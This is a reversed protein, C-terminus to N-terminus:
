EFSEIIKLAYKLILQADALEVSLNQDVDAAWTGIEGLQDIKLAARLALKADTLDVKGDGDVDGLRIPTPTPVQSPVPTPTPVQSPEPTPTPVESPAPTPTPGESPLPKADPTENPTYGETFLQYTKGKETELTIGDANKTFAVANGDADKVESVNIGELELTGGANSTIQAYKAVGGKWQMDVTFNGRAVLGEVYGDSWASPLAPLLEVKDNQSQLLMETVGATGGFNGDIQFPAHTDFLNDYTSTALMANFLDYAHDGDGTRAWLNLRHALGWGTSVDTRKTLVYQAAEIYEKDDKNIYNGPYLAVLQSIHRHDDSGIGKGTATRNYKTEHQWEKIQGSEGIAVPDLRDIADKLSALLVGDDAIYAEATTAPEKAEIGLDEMVKITDNFLQWVLQQDFYAGVTWQGQESSYSPVVFLKDKDTETRGNQLTQLYTICAERLYPYIDSKLYDLDQTYAYYDYLNQALFAVATPAFAANSDINGTFGRATTSCNFTFGDETELDIKSEDSDYGIGYQKALTLRGPKRLSNAYDVLATATEALNTSEALWYNMQLNINTHWDSNWAPGDTDNWIGQLNAPLSGERSSAILMYRGYQYYLMELYKSYGDDNKTGNYNDKYADLLEDTPIDAPFEAGLDLRVRDFLQRYDIEHRTLLADYGKAAAAEVKEEVNATLQELSEGTTYDKDFDNVYDTTLSVIIYAENAGTVTISGNDRPEALGNSIENEAVMEGGTTVVKFQGVFKMGNHNLSGSLTITDDAAVVNGEKGYNEKGYGESTDLYRGEFIGMQPIEPHLTFNVKGNESATMKYVIVDDPYSAFMERDYTVGEYDYTVTSLAENLDLARKYNTAKDIDQNYDIKMECFSQYAGEQERANPTLGEANSSKNHNSFPTAKSNDLEGGSKLGEYYADFANDVLAKMNKEPNKINKNGYVDGNNKAGMNEESGPGGTWLSEENMQVIETDIYGFSMAGMGGNGIPLAHKAWTVGQRAADTVDWTQGGLSIPPNQEKNKAKKDTYNWKDNRGIELNDDGLLTSGSWAFKWKRSAFIEYVDAEAPEDYWLVMNDAANLIEAADVDTEGFSLGQLAGAVMTASLLISGAGKLWKGKKM